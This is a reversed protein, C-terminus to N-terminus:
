SKRRVVAILGSVVVLAGVLWLWWRSSQEPTQETIEIVAVEVPEKVEIGVPKEVIQPTELIEVSPEEPKWKGIIRWDGEYNRIFERASEVQDWTPRPGWYDTEPFGVLSQSLAIVALSALARDRPFSLPPIPNSPGGIDRMLYTVLLDVIEPQRVYGLDEVTTYYSHILEEESIEKMYDVIRHIAVEDDRRAQVMTAAWVASQFFVLKGAGMNEFMVNVRDSKFADPRESLDMLDLNTNDIGAVGLIYIYSSSRPNLSYSLLNDKASQNYYSGEFPPKWLRRLIFSQRNEGRLGETLLETYFQVEILSEARKMEGYIATYVDIMIKEDTVTRLVDRIPSEMTVGVEALETQTRESLDLDKLLSVVDTSTASFCTITAAQFIFLYKLFFM